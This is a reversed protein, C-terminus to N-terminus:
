VVTVQRDGAQVREFFQEVNLGSIILDYTDDDSSFGSDSM